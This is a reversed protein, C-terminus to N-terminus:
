ENHDTETLIQDYITKALNNLFDDVHVKFKKSDFNEIAEKEEQSLKVTTSQKVNVLLVVIPNTLFENGSATITQESHKSSYLNPSLNAMYRDSNMNIESNYPNEIKPEETPHHEEIPHLEERRSSHFVQDDFNIELGKIDERNNETTYYIQHDDISKTM